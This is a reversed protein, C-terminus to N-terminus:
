APLIAVTSGLASAIAVPNGTAFATGVQMLVSVVHLAKDIDTLTTLDRNLRATIESLDDLADQVNDLTLNIGMDLFDNSTARLTTEVNRLSGQQLDSLDEFHAFRYTEVTKAFGSLAQAIQLAQDQTLNM